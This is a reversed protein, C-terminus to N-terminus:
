FEARFEMKMKHVSKQLPYNNGSYELTATTFSNMQYNLRFNWRFINGARKDPLFVLFDSGTRQNNRYELQTYLRYRRQFFYTLTETIGVGTMKYTLGGGSRDGIEEDVFLKSSIQIGNNLTNRVDISYYNNEKISNYHSEIENRNEYSLEFDAGFYKNFRLAAERSEIDSTYSDQYRNDLTKDKQLSIKGLVRGTKIDLWSTHRLLSRSYISLDDSMVVSPKLLYVDWKNHARSNESILFYNDLQLRNLVKEVLTLKEKDKNKNAETIYMRPIINLQLDANIEISMESDGVQVSRYDYEGDDTVVGTSDYVGINKGVYILERVKPYFEVNKLMYNASSNVSKKLFRNNLNIEALDFSNDGEDVKQSVDFHSYAVRLQQEKYDVYAEGGVGKSQRTGRWAGDDIVENDEVQVFIKGATQKTDYTGFTVNKREIKTGFEGKYSDGSENMRDFSEKYVRYYYESELMVPRLKYAASVQNQNSTLRNNASGIEQQNAYFYRYNLEPLGWKQAANTNILFNDQIYNNYMTKRWYKAMPTIFEAIRMTLNAGLESCREEDEQPIEYYDYEQEPKRIDTFTNLDKSLYRYYVSGSPNIRNFDPHYNLQLHYGYGFDDDRDLKSFTNKDYKSVVVEGFLDYDDKEFHLALDYNALYEPTPILRGIEWDGQQEGVYEFSDLGSQRYSGKGAGVFSFHINYDGENYGVYSYYELGDYTKQLIYSGTGQEVKTVGEGWVPQDGSEKLLALDENTFSEILPNNKDDNRILLNTKLKLSDFINIESNALYMNQRYNEDSYQFRVFIQSNSDIFHKSKFDISGESYDITYDDGRSLQSGNLFVEESGPIVLLNSSQTSATLYYPGQKGDKGKFELSEQKGKSIAIAGKLKHNGDWEVKIGEFKARYNVFQTNDLTMELDGFALEYENGYIKIFIEDLNSLERSDGEPTLPSQSDSLQAQIMMNKRLEGDIRLFLSQSINFDEENSVSVAFTKSGSINLDTDQFALDLRQKDPKVVSLDDTLEGAVFYFFKQYINPPIVFYEIEVSGLDLLKDEFEIVGDQYNLRYDTERLLTRDGAYVKESNLLIGSKGLKYLRIGEVFSISETRVSSSFYGRLENSDGIENALSVSCLAGLLLILALFLLKRPKFYRSIV